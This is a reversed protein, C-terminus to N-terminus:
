KHNHEHRPQNVIENMVIEDASLPHNQLAKVKEKPPLSQVAQSNAMSGILALYREAAQNGVSELYQDLKGERALVRVLDPCSAQIFQLHLRAYNVAARSM